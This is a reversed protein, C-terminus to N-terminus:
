SFNHFIIFFIFFINGLTTKVVDMYTYNRKGTVPEPSKNCDSFLISTFWTILAFILLAAPGAIWGMLWQGGLLYCEATIIHANASSWTGTRKPHGDEDFYVGPAGAEVM